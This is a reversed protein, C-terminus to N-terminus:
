FCSILNGVARRGELGAVGNIKGDDVFVAVATGKDLICGRAELVWCFGGGGEM